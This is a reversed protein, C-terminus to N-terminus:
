WRCERRLAQRRLWCVPAACPAASRRRRGAPQASAPLLRSRPAGPRACRLTRVCRVVLRYKPTNYKNKDQITLRLRASCLSVPTLLRQVAAVPRRSWALDPCACLCWRRQLARRGAGSRVPLGDQGRAAPPAQGPLALLVRQEQWGPRGGHHSTACRTLRTSCISSRACAGVPGRVFLANELFAGGGCRGDKTLSACM